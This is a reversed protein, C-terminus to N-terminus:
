TEAPAGAGGDVIRLVNMFVEAVADKDEEGKGEGKSKEEIIDLDAGRMVADPDQLMASRPAAPSRAHCERCISVGPTLSATFSNEKSLKILHQMHLVNFPGHEM